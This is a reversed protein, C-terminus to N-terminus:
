GIYVLDSGYFILVLKIVQTKEMSKKFKEDISYNRLQEEAETRLNKIVGPAPKKRKGEPKIYKIELVYSYKLGEYVAVFPEMVIDAYGKNLE